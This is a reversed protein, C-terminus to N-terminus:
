ANSSIIIGHSSMPVAYCFIEEPKAPSRMEETGIQDVSMVYKWPSLSASLNLRSIPIPIPNIPTTSMTPISLRVPDDSESEIM